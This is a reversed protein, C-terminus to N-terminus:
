APIGRSVLAEAIQIANLAAGKRLNDSAVWFVLGNPNTLDRRARGVRVPDTGAARLSTPVRGRAPDDEVVIGPFARWLARAAEPEIARDLAVWVASCHGVRVPVRAATTTIPLEPIGLIKRTEWVIKMEERTYGNDEFRDIMPIVNWAFPDLGGARPPPPGDLGARIGSELDALAEAGAGSVSQVASVVR